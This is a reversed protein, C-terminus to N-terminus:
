EAAETFHSARMTETEFVFQETQVGREDFEASRDEVPRLVPAGFASHLQMQQEIMLPQKFAPKVQVRAEDKLCNNPSNRRM